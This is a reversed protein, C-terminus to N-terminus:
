LDFQVGDFANKVIKEMETNFEYLSPINTYEKEKAAEAAAEAVKTNTEMLEVAAKRVFHDVAMSKISSKVYQIGVGKWGEAKYAKRTKFAWEITIGCQIAYYAVALARNDPASPKAMETAIFISEKGAQDVYNKVANATKAIINTNM